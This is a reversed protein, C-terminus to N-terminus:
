SQICLGRPSSEIGGGSGELMQLYSSTTSFFFLHASSPSVSQDMRKIGLVLGQVGLLDSGVLKQSGAAERDLSPSQGTNLWAIVACIVGVVVPTPLECAARLVAEGM